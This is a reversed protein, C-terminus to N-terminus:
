IKEEPSSFLGPKSEWIIKLQVQLNHLGELYHPLIEPSSMMQHFGLQRRERPRRSNGATKPQRKQQLSQRAGNRAKSQYSRQRGRGCRLTTKTIKCRLFYLQSSLCERM